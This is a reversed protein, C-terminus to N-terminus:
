LKELENVQTHVKTLSVWSSCLSHTKSFLTILFINLSLLSSIVPSFQTILLKTIKVEQWMKQIVLYPFHSLYLMHCKHPLLYTCVSNQHPFLFSLHWKSSSNIPSLIINFQIQFVNSPMSQSLTASSLSFHSVKKCKAILRLNWLICLIQGNAESPPDRLM